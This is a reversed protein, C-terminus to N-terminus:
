DATVDPSAPYDNKQTKALFRERLSTIGRYFVLGKRQSRQAEGSKNQTLEEKKNCLTGCLIVSFWLTSPERDSFRSLTILERGKNSLPLAPSPNLIVRLSQKAEAAIVGPNGPDQIHM